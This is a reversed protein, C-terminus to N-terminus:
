PPLQQPHQYVVCLCSKRVSSSFFNNTGRFATHVVRLRVHVQKTNKFANEYHVVYRAKCNLRGHYLNSYCEYTQVVTSARRAM